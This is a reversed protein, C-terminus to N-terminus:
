RFSVDRESSPRKLEDRTTNNKWDILKDALGQEWLGDQVAIFILDNAVKAVGYLLTEQDKKRFTYKNFRTGLVEMTEGIDRSNLTDLATRLLRNASEPNIAKAFFFTDDAYVYMALSKVAEIPAYRQVRRGSEKCPDSITGYDGCLASSGASIESAVFLPGCVRERTHDDRHRDSRTIMFTYAFDHMDIDLGNTELLYALSRDSVRRYRYDTIVERAKKVDGYKVYRSAEALNAKIEAIRNKSILGLRYAGDGENGEGFERYSGRIKTIVDIDKDIRRRVEEFAKTDDISGLLQVRHASRIHAAVAEIRAGDLVFKQKREIFAVKNQFFSDEPSKQLSQRAQGARLSDTPTFLIAVVMPTRGTLRRSFILQFATVDTVAYHM